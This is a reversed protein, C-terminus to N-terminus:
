TGGTAPINMTTQGTAPIALATQGIAPITVLVMPAPPASPNSGGMLLGPALIQLIM